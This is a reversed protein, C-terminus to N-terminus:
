KYGIKLPSALQNHSVTQFAVTILLNLFLIKVIRPM